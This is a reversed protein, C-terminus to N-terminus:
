RNSHDLELVVATEDCRAQLPCIACDRWVKEPFREKETITFGLKLFFPVARTLAFVTAYGRRRAQDILTRVIKAGIGYSRYAPLVALSRVEVLQQGMILLSACGVVTGDVEAILWDPLSARISAESRPLLHGLRANENVIATLATVDAEAPTRVVIVSQDRPTTGVQESRIRSTM